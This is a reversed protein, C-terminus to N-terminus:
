RAFPLAEVVDSAIVGDVGLRGAAHRGARAHLRVAPARPPSRISRRPGAAGRRRRQARRRHGATALAPTAGPSVAVLGDPAAVLTDDGKLVVIAGTRRAAERVHHLRRAQM